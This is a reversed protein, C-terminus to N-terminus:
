QLPHAAFQFIIVCAECGFIMHLATFVLNESETRIM